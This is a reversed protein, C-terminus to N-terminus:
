AHPINGANKLMRGMVGNLNLLNSMNISAAGANFLTNGGATAGGLSTVNGVLNSNASMLTGLRAQVAQIPKTINSIMATTVSAAQSVTQIGSDITSLLSSVQSDGIALGLSNANLMDSALAADIGPDAVARVPSTNDSVVEFAISYPLRHFNQYRYIFKRMLVNYDYSYWTLRLPLGAVRLSDLYRARDAANQGEFIGTWELPADDRGMADIQRVGGIMKHVVLSQEGGLPIEEPIEFRAFNFYIGSQPDLLTLITDPVM